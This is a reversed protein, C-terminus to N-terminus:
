RSVPQHGWASIANYVRDNSWHEDVVVGGYGVEVEFGAPTRLYFSFMQDNPHRGLGNPLPVGAAFARDFARGVDDRDNVEVMIHHLRGPPMGPPQILAISHHRGNSHYFGGDVSVEPAIDVHLSDSRGLGLGDVLFREDAALDPTFCVVHGFGMSGTVFGSPVLTSDLPTSADIQGVAVEFPIGTPSAVRWLSTVLRLECESRTAETIEHGLGGLREALASSTANDVATLGVAAVDNAPGDVIVVRCAREDNRWRSVGDCHEGAMLGVVDRLVVETAGRHQTEVVVYGLELHHV